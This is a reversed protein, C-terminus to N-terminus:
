KKKGQALSKLEFHDKNEEIFRLQEYWLSDTPVGDQDVQIFISTNAKYWKKKIYFDKLFKLEAEM